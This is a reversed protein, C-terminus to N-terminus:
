VLRKRTTKTTTNVGCCATLSDSCRESTIAATKGCLADLFRQPSTILRSSGTGCNNCTFRSAVALTHSDRSSSRAAEGCQFRCRRSNALPQLWHKACAM